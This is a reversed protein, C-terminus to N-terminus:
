SRLSLLYEDPNEIEDWYPKLHKSLNNMKDALTNDNLKIFEKPRLEVLENNEKKWKAMGKIGIRKYLHTALERANSESTEFSIANGNDLEIRVLPKAGGLRILKGYVTTHGKIFFYRNIRLDTSPTIKASEIKDYGNLEAVCNRATVFKQIESLYEVTKFPLKTLTNNSISHNIDNAAEFIVDESNTTFFISESENKVDVVSIFAIDKKNPHKKEIYSLLANEYASILKAFQNASVSEPNMDEGIFRLKLNKVM